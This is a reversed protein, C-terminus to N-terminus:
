IQRTSHFIVHGIHRVPIKLHASNVNLSEVWARTPSKQSLSPPLLWTSRLNNKLKYHGLQGAPPRALM